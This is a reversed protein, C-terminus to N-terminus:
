APVADTGGIGLSAGALQVRNRGEMIIDARGLNVGAFGVQMVSTRWGGPGQVIDPQTLFTHTHGGVVYDVGAVRQPWHLDGPEGSNGTHGLHSVAIVLDCGAARLEDVKKRAHEAPDVYKVGECMKPHVLGQLVVSLGFVGVKVGGLERIFHQQLLGNLATGTVDYSGLLTFRAFKSAKVLGDVGADFDHNGLNSADYGAMSMLEYDLTGLYKNFYPTGQFCDGADLVLTNPQEAKIRRILHARRAIGGRDSLAGQGAPIPDLRSHTDNTHLLTIVSRGSAHAFAPFAVAGMLFHRRTFSM